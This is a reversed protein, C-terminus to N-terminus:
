SSWSPTRVQRCISPRARLRCSTPPAAAGIVFPVGNWTQSTGLLNASLTNGSGDLGGTTKTGDATIGTLNFDGALDVQVDATADTLEATAENSNTSAAPGNLARVLYYYTNGPVVTADIYTTATPSLPTANLPTTSEGGPTTGRYINYGTLSGAPATWSLEIGGSGGGQQMAQLSFATQTALSVPPDIAAVTSIALVDVDRDSPLTISSVTKSGDLQISYGYVDFYRNDAGGGATNRHATRDVVSEGAFNQPTYWDSMNQTLTVSTGDSYNVVFQQNRQNGQVATALIDLQTYQGAPINITQGTSQVVNNTGAAGIAFNVGNWVQSTGLLNASLANGVGDLGGSFHAGNATIGTLNFDASLDVTSVVQSALLSSFDNGTGVAGSTLAIASLSSSGVTGSAQSGVTATGAVYGMLPTATLTYTGPRLGSFLYPDSSDTTTTLNVVNGLDDTGTLAIAVGALETEGPNFVGNGNADVYAYGSLSAPLLVAFDNGTGITGIALQINSLTGSGVTGNQTGISDTGALDGSPLTVALSYTGPVLNSFAYGGSNATTTTQDIANGHADTGTLTVTAGSLVSEGSDFSGNDNADIYVYGSLSAPALDAFDNNAGNTGSAVTIGSISRVGVTGGPTGVSVLGDTYGTPRTETLKYTGPRLNIFSYAGGAATTTTVSVATGQDNTGTLTVTVGALPTEGANFVGDDNADIYVYGSLSGPLLDAFNNGTGAIGTSM